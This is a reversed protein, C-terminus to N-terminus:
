QKMTRPCFLTHYSYIYELTLARRATHKETTVFACQHPFQDQVIPPTHSTHLPINYGYHFPGLLEFFSEFVSKSLCPLDVVGVLPM